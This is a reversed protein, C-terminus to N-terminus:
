ERHYRDSIANQLVEPILILVLIGEEQPLTDLIGEKTIGAVLLIPVLTHVIVPTGVNALTDEGEESEAEAGVKGASTGETHIIIVILIM